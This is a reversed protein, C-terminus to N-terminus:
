DSSPINRSLVETYNGQDVVKGEKMLYVVSCNKVTSLRHAVLILTKKGPMAEISDMVKKETHVDLASTAEDFIIMEADKYLARAIGLRQREGGSLMVGREGVLSNLGGQMKEVFDMVCARKACELVREDDIEDKKCGFAINDRISGDALFITQPVHAVKRRWDYLSDLNIENEDILFKGSTSHLLGMIIDILTSKGSGTSGIIGIREGRRITLNIDQLALQSPSQYYFSVNLLKINSDFTIQKPSVCNAQEVPRDLLDIVEVLSSQHGKIATWANYAQQLAPLMRQASLALVGLLPVSSQIGGPQMALVYALLAVFVVGFSEMLFRPSGEIISNSGEANRLLADSKQHLMLFLEQTGDLIIDRIGGLGEQILKLTKTKNNAIALSNIKLRTRVSINILLYAAGFFSFSALAIQPNVYLLAIVISFLLVVSSILRVLQSLANVAVDVKAMASIVSSSNTKLHALYPQNLVTRYLRESLDSGCGFTVRVVARLHLLRIFGALLIAIVFAIALPNVISGATTYGLMSSIEYVLPQGYVKEPSILAGLFPILAGLSIIEAFASLITLIFILIFQYRRQKGLHGWLRKLLYLTQAQGLNQSL